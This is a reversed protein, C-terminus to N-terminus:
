KDCFIVVRTFFVHRPSLRSPLGAYLGIRSERRSEQRSKKRSFDRWCDRIPNYAHSGALSEGLSTKKRPCDVALPSGLHLSASPPPLLRIGAPPLERVGSITDPPLCAGPSVSRPLYIYGPIHLRCLPPPSPLPALVADLRACSASHFTPVHHLSTPSDTFGSFVSITKKVCLRFSSLHFSGRNWPRFTLLFRLM